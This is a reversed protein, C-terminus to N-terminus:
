HSRLSPWSTSEAASACTCVGVDIQQTFGLGLAEDDDGFVLVESVQDEAIAEVTMADDKQPHPVKRYREAQRPELGDPGRDFFRGPLNTTTM